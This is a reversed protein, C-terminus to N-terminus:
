KDPKNSFFVQGKVILVEGDVTLSLDQFRGYVTNDQIKIPIIKPLPVKVPKSLPAIFLKLLPSIDLQIGQFALLIDEQGPSLSISINGNVRGRVQQILGSSSTVDFDMAITLATTKADVRKDFQLKGPNSLTVALPVKIADLIVIEQKITLPFAADIFSQLTDKGIRIEMPGATATVPIFIFLGVLLLCILSYANKSFFHTKGFEEFSPSSFYKMIAVKCM